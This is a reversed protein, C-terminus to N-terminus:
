EDINQARFESSVSYTLPNRPYAEGADLGSRITDRIEVISLGLELAVTELHMEVDARNLLRAGVLQGLTFSARNLAINRRGQQTRTLVDLEGFLM